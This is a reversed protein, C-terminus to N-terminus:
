NEPPSQGQSADPHAQLLSNLESRAPKLTPMLRLSAQFERAALAWQNKKSFVQALRYHGRADGPALELQRAFEKQAGNLDGSDLLAMGLNYHAEAVDPQLRVSTQYEQLALNTQGAAMLTSALCYRAYSNSPDLALARRLEKEASTYQALTQLAFGLGSHYDPNNDDQAAADQLHPLAAAAQGTKMLIMGMNYELVPNHGGLAEAAAWHPQADANHGQLVLVSGLGFQAPYFGPSIEVAKKYMVLADAQNGQKQCGLGLCYYAVGNEGTVELTHGFLTFTNRWYQIQRCTLALCSALVLAGVVRMGVQAKRRIAEKQALGDAVGWVMAVFLGIVPLYMYRDAMSQAGVQVLGITPVLMGLFWLWGMILSPFRRWWVLFLFTWTVLFVVSVGVLLLPLHARYPYLLSLGAPVLTDSTYRLYSWLANGLRYSLPLAAVSMMAGAQKQALFTVVADGGALIFFPIKELVLPIVAKCLIIWDPQPASGTAPIPKVWRQLPWFDLLLLVFPLTVAMPKSMLACGFLLLAALYTRARPMRAYRAYTALTLIFFFGCLVDKRESAWAVSEVHQPHWGFLAAVMFCRWNQGTMLRLAMFLLATNLSHLFANMLHHWGPELGFLSCDLMHSIWTLPHWNAQYFTGFAWRIGGQTLGRSVEPNETIYGQDDFQIFDNKFTPLYLLLTSVFLFAAMLWAQRLDKRAQTAATSDM